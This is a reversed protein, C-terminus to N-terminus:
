LASLSLIWMVLLWPGVRSPRELGSTAAGPVFMTAALANESGVLAHTAIVPVLMALGYTQPTQANISAVCGFSVAACISPMIWRVARGSGPDDNLQAFSAPKPAISGSAQMM